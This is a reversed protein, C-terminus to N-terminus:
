GRLGFGRGARRSPRAVNAADLCCTHASLFWVLPVPNLKSKPQYRGGGGMYVCGGGMCVCRGGRLVVQLRHRHRHRVQWGHATGNHRQVVRSAQRHAVQACVRQEVRHSECLHPPNTPTPNPTPNTPNRPLQQHPPRPLLNVNCTDFHRREPSPSLSPSQLCYSPSSSSRNSLRRPLVDNRIPLM